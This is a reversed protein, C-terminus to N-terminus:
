TNRTRSKKQVDWCKQSACNATFLCFCLEQFIIDDPQTSMYHFENIRNNILHTVPDQQLTILTSVLEDM